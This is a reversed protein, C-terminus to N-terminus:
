QRAGDRYKQERVVLLEQMKVNNRFFKKYTM